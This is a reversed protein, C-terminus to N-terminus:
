CSLVYHNHFHHNIRRRCHPSCFGIISIPSFLTEKDFINSVSSIYWGLCPSFIFLSFSFCRSSTYLGFSEFCTSLGNTSMCNYSWMHLWWPNNSQPPCGQKSSYIGHSSLWLHLTEYFNSINAKDLLLVPTKTFLM